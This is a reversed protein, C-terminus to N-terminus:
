LHHSHACVIQIRPNGMFVALKRMTNDSITHEIKHAETHIKKADIKLFRLLFLEILLHKRILKKAHILGAKTLQIALSNDQQILKKSKLRTLMKSVAARSVNHMHAIAAARVGEHNEQYALCYIAILYDEQTQLLM